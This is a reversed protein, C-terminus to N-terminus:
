PSNLGTRGVAPFASSRIWRWCHNDPQGAGRYVSDSGWRRRVYPDRQWRRSELRAAHQRLFGSVVHRGDPTVAVANVLGAHGQLTTKFTEDDVPATFRGDDIMLTCSKMRVAAGGGSQSVFAQAPALRRPSSATVGSSILASIAACRCSVSDSPRSALHNASSILQEFSIQGQRTILSQIDLAPPCTV